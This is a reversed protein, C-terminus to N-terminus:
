HRFIMWICGNPHRWGLSPFISVVDPRLEDVLPQDISTVHAPHLHEGESWPCILATFRRSVSVMKRVFAPIKDRALHEIVHSSIVIDYTGDQVDFLDGVHVRLRDDHLFPYFRAWQSSLELVEVSLKPGYFGRGFLREFYAAGFGPGGGVDLLSMPTGVPIQQLEPKILQLLDGGFQLGQAAWRGCVFDFDDKPFIRAFNRRVIKGKLADALRLLRLHWREPLLDM